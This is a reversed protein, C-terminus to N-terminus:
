PLHASWLDIVADPNDANVWHGGDIRHLSVMGHSAHAREIRACAEEGLTSSDAAKVVHVRRSPHSAEIVRWLDARFFDLLLDRMVSFDLRWRFGGDTATLNTAMWSAVGVAIGHAALAEVLDVRREFRDPLSEILSLMEWATGSPPRADPTSDLLWLSQLPMEEAARLAVKGGFSHGALAAVNVGSAAACRRVDAACAEVTHPPPLNPSDGHQRLDVLLVGWDPRRRVFQRAVSTWNRGRGYIGHLVLLWRDPADVASVRSHALIESGIQPVMAVSDRADRVLVAIIPQKRARAELPERGTAELSVHM